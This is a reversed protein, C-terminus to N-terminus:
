YLAVYIDCSGVWVKSHREYENLRERVTVTGADFFVHELLKTCM